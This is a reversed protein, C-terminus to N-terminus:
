PLHSKLNETASLELKKNEQILLTVHDICQEETKWEKSIAEVLKRNMELAQLLLETIVKSDSSYTVNVEGGFSM